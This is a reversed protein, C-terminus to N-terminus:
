LYGGGSLFLEVAIILLVLAFARQLKEAPLNHALKAGVRAAPASCIVISLFAPLYFFGFAYAPLEANDWGQYIYSCLGSLAIPFGLAASTAVARAMVMNCFRFYPVSISGGGVGFMSSVCGIFAGAISGGVPGPVQGRGQTLGTLMTLSVFALFAAFAMQLQAGELWAAVVGGLWGGLLVGPVMATLVNVEIARKQWHTWSSIVATVVICGLSTGVALHTMISGPFALSGFTYILAPVIVVGGGLGFMGAILGAVIGVVIFILMLSLM